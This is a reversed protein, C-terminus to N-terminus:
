CAELMKIVNDWLTLADGVDESTLLEIETDTLEELTDLSILTNRNIVKAM